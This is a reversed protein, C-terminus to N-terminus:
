APVRRPLQVASVQIWSIASFPTSTPIEDHFRGPGFLALAAEGTVAIRGPRIEGLCQRLMARAREADGEARALYAQTTLASAEALFNSARRRKRPRALRDGLIDTESIVALTETEFGADLPLVVRQPQEVLM